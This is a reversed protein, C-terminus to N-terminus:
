RHLAAKVVFVGNLGGLAVAFEDFLPVGLEEAVCGFIIFFSCSSDTLRQRTSAYFNIDRMVPLPLHSVTRSYDSSSKLRQTCVGLAPM